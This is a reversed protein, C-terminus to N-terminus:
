RDLRLRVVELERGACTVSASASRDHDGRAHIRYEGPPCPGCTRVHPGVSTPTGLQMSAWDLGFPGEIDIRAPIPRGDRDEVHVEIRTGPRLPLEIESEAGARVEVEVPASSVGTESRALARVRGPVVGICKVGERTIVVSRAGSRNRGDAGFLMVSAQPEREGQANAIRAILTGGLEVRLEIDDRAQNPQLDVIRRVSNVFPERPGNGPLSGTVLYSGADLSEFRFSGDPASTQQGRTAPTNAPADPNEFLTIYVDRLPSGDPALVRGGIRAGGFQLELRSVGDAPVEVDRGIVTGASLRADIGYRGPEDLTLEFRGQADCHTSHRRAQAKPWRPLASIEADSANAARVVGSVRTPSRPPGGLVLHATEGEALVLDASAALQSEDLKRADVLASEETSLVRSVHWRGPALPSMVFHGQADARVNTSRAGMEDDLSPTAEFRAGADPEGDPRLARGEIRSPARLRLTIEPIRGDVPEVRAPASPAFDRARAKLEFARPILDDFQFRGESNTSTSRDISNRWGAPSAPEVSRLDVTVGRALNGASDLVRGQVVVSRPVVLTIPGSSQPLTVRESASHAGRVSADVDWRGTLLSDFAFSGDSARFWRLDGLRDYPQPDDAPNVIRVSFETRPEGREDVVRGLLTLGRGLVLEIDDAGAAVHRKLAVGRERGGLRTEGDKTTPSADSGNTVKRLARACLTYAGPELGGATFRGDDTTTVVGPRADDYWEQASEIVDSAIEVKAKGAPAGDPWTLRGSISLGHALHLELGERLEGESLAAHTSTSPLFGPHSGRLTFARARLGGIEFSGDKATTFHSSGARDDPELMLSAGDVPENKEDLVRGRVITSLRLDLALERTTGAAVLVDARELAAAGHARVTLSADTNAPVGGLEFHLRADLTATIVRGEAAEENAPRWTVLGRPATAARAGPRDALRCTGTIRRGLEPRLVIEAPPASVDLAFDHALYLYRAALTLRANRTSKEFAVRFHGQADPRARHLERQEFKRGAAVVWLEEDAPTGPPLEVRGEIWRADAPLAADIANTARTATSALEQDPDVLANPADSTWRQLEAAAAVDRTGGRESRADSREHGVVYWAAVAALAAVFTM